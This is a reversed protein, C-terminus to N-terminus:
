ASGQVAFALKYLQRLLLSGSNVCCKPCGLKLVGVDVYLDAMMKRVDVMVNDNRKGTLESIELSTMTIVQETTKM